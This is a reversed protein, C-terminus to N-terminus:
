NYFLICLLSVSQLLIVCFDLHFLCPRSDSEGEFSLSRSQALVRVGSSEQSQISVGAKFIM